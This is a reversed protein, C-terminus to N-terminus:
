KPRLQEDYLHQYMRYNAMVKQVYDKTQAYVIEPVYRDPQNSRSRDLWRKMNEEGGNYSAAVAETQSPFATFLGAIYQSGFLIATPPHYLADQVFGERGLENATSTATASIFQMLGRASAYSKVDPQFRSEQRMIGLLLRPDVGRATAHTILADAYPAPYLLELQERPMLEIPFDTPVRRWAPEIFEFASDVRDGRKLEVVRDLETGGGTRPYEIAEDYLGLSILRDRASAGRSVAPSLKPLQGIQYRPLSRVAKRLVDLAKERLQADDTLRLLAQANRRRIDADRDQLVADLAAIKQGFAPRAAEIRGLGGLRETSRWGYYENRGDAISLYADIAEAYKKQQELVYATLFSVEAASTGGPVTAGGLDPFGKLRGLSSYANAWDERAFHIRAEAFIALAEPVRGRFAEQTKTCWKLAETDAGQDRQVDVINLYARDLKEDAPYKDIFAQYRSIAEKARGLRSYTAGAQLLAERAATSAPYQELVREFRALAEVFESQQFHGRGIQFVADAANPGNPSNALIAEFHGRSRSFERNFQYVLARRQHEAEALRPAAADGRDILDLRETARLAIDDPQKADATDLLGAFIERAKDTQAAGLYADGLLSRHERIQAAGAKGSSDASIARGGTLISIAGAYNGSELYNEALRRTAGSALAADVDGLSLELLYIRELMLNGTSRAIASMRRQALSSLVSDRQAVTHYRAMASALSGHGEELRGLLYDLDQAGFAAKDKSELERLRAIAVDYNREEISRIPAQSEPSSAAFPPAFLLAIFVILSRILM